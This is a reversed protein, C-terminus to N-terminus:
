CQAVSARFVIGQVCFSLLQIEVAGSEVVAFSVERERERM